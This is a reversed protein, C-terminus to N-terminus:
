NQKENLKDLKQKRITKIFKKYEIIHNSCLSDKSIIKDTPKSYPCRIEYKCTQSIKCIVKM